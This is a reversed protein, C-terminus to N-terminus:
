NRFGRQLRWKEISRATHLVGLMSLTDDSVDFVVIYPFRGVPAYRLGLVESTYRDPDAIIKLVASKVNSAAPSAIEGTM